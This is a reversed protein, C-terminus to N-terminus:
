ICFVFVVFHIQADDFVGVLYIQNVYNAINSELKFRLQKTGIIGVLCISKFVSYFFCLWLRLCLPPPLPPPSPAPRGAPQIQTGGGPFYSCQDRIYLCVGIKYFSIEKTYYPCAYTFLFHVKSVPTVYSMM